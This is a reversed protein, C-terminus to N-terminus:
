VAQFSCDFLGSVTNLSFSYKLTNLFHLHLASSVQLYDRHKLYSLINKFEPLSVNQLIIGGTTSGM